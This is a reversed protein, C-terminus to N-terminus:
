KHATLCVWGGEDRRGSLTFGNESLCSLVEDARTDIIGSMLFVGDGTMYEGVVPIFRKIVDAVINAAVVTYKGKVKDALDGCVATYRPPLFGNMEANAAATKAAFKDIDVAFAEKAGLLLAAISLIGSGAGIDLVTDGDKILSDLVELCLRTTNHSGTGFAAGPEMLLVRREGVDGPEMWAPCVYLRKGVSFPKYYKKWNNTWDEDSCPTNEIVHSIGEASFRESLFAIAEAPSEEPSIYIHIVANDRDRALLEEDILDIHAIELAEAELNSYDETYFGYPVAMLAISQALEIDSVPIKIKIETWDM